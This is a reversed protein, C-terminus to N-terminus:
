TFTFAPAFMVFVAFVAFVKQHPYSFHEYIGLHASQPILRLALNLVGPPALYLRQVHLMELSPPLLPADRPPHGM